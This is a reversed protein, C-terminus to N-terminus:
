VTCMTKVQNLRGGMKIKDVWNSKGKNVTAYINKKITRWKKIIQGNKDESNEQMLVAGVDYLLKSTTLTPAGPSPKHVLKVKQEDIRWFPETKNDL